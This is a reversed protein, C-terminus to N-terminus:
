GEKEGDRPRIPRADKWIEALGKGSLHRELAMTRSAMTVEGRTREILGRAVDQKRRVPLMSDPYNFGMLVEFSTEMSQLYKEAGDINGNKLETLVLRRLEGMVDGLGLVYAEPPVGIDELIGAL